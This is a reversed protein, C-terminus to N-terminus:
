FLATFCIEESIFFIGLLGILIFPSLIFLSISEPINSELVGKSVKNHHILISLEVASINIISNDICNKKLNIILVSDFKFKKSPQDKSLSFLIFSNRSLNTLYLLPILSIYIINPTM